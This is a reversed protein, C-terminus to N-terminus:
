IKINAPQDLLGPARAPPAGIIVRLSDRPEMGPEWELIENGEADKIGPEGNKAGGIRVFIPTPRQTSEDWAWLTQWDPADARKKWEAISARAADTQYPEDLRFNLAASPVRWANPREVRVIDISMTMGPRLQWEGTDPDKRNVVEIITDYYVAGKVSTSQLRKEKVTGSFEIEKDAYNSIKFYATLTGKVKNIDGEAVLAHVEVIDLNGALTFLPGAQPGVQQGEHVKRELIVFERKAAGPLLQSLGPVKIHLLEKVLEAEKKATQATLKKAAVAEVGAQAAEIGALAAKYQAEAQEREARFGGKDKLELQLKVNREAGDKTALAQSVNAKAQSMAADAMLIGNNAEEIKLNIDREDLEALVMGPSVTDGVRALISTVTGPTKSSVVVIERPEVVGTASIIDRINARRVDAFTLAKESLTQVHRLAVWAYLGAGIALLLVAFILWKKV